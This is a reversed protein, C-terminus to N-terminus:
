LIEGLVRVAIDIEKKSITLPPLFRLVNDNACNILLGKKAAKEVYEKGQKDLEIGIMLGKGRIGKIVPKGLKGIEAILYDGAEKANKDLRNKLVHDIVFNAAQCSLSNGGFTSGHEGKSFDVDKKSVTVGIPIGGALGKALTVIDAKVDEYQSALFKGTRFSGSQVEDLIFLVGKEKCIEEVEKLYGKHPMNIGGEGQIPEVM